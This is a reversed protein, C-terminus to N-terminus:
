AGSAIGDSSHADPLGVMDGRAFVKHGVDWHEPMFGPQMTTLFHRRCERIMEGLNGSAMWASVVQEGKDREWRDKRKDQNDPQLCPEWDLVHQLLKLADPRVGLLLRCLAPSSAQMEAQFDDAAAGSPLQVPTGSTNQELQVQDWLDLLRKFVLLAREERVRDGGRILGVATCKMAHHHDKEPRKDRNFEVGVQAAIAEKVERGHTTSAKQHCPVCLLLVDHSGPQQATPLFARYCSPVINYRAMNQESGCVVCRNEKFTTYFRERQELMAAEDANVGMGEAAGGARLERRVGFRGKPEFRLKITREDIPDALERKVYWQLKKFDVTCIAQGDPALITCNEYVPRKAAVRHVFSLFRARKKLPEQAVRLQQEAPLAALAQEYAAYSKFPCWWRECAQKTGAQALRQYFSAAIGGDGAAALSGMLTPLERRRIAALIESVEEYAQSDLHAQWAIQVEDGDLGDFELQLDSGEVVGDLAAAAAVDDAAALARAVLEDPLLWQTSTDLRRASHRRWESLAELYVRSTGPAFRRAARALGSGVSDERAGDNCRMLARVSVKSLDQLWSPGQQTPCCQTVFRHLPTWQQAEACDDVLTQRPPCSAQGELSFGGPLCCDKPCLHCWLRLLAGAIPLLFYADAAAYRRQLPGLPRREWDSLQLRRKLALPSHFNCLAGWQDTLAELPFGLLRTLVQTDLVCVTRMGLDQRLWVLDNDAAHFVKVIQRSCFIEALAHQIDAAPLRLPDVLFAHGGRAATSLQLLCTYGEYSRLWHREVDVGIASGELLVERCSALAEATEVLVLCGEESLLRSPQFAGPGGIGALAAALMAPADEVHRARAYFRMATRLEDSRIVGEDAPMTARCRPM